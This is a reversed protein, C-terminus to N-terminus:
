KFFLIMKLYLFVELPAMHVELNSVFHHPPKFHMSQCSDPNWLGFSRVKFPDFMTSSCLVAVVEHDDSVMDWYLESIGQGKKQNPDHKMDGEVM